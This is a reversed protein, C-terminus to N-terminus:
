VIQINTSTAIHLLWFFSPLTSHLIFHNVIITIISYLIINLNFIFFVIEFYIIIKKANKLKM